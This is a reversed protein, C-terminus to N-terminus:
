SNGSVLQQTGDGSLAMPMISSVLMDAYAEIMPLLERRDILDIKNLILM